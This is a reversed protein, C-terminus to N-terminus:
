NQNQHLIIQNFDAFIKWQTLSNYYKDTTSTSNKRDRMKREKLISIDQINFINSLSTISAPTMLGRFLGRLNKPSICKLARLGWYQTNSLMSRCFVKRIVYLLTLLILLCMCRDDILMDLLVFSVIRYNIFINVIGSLWEVVYSLEFIFLLSPL